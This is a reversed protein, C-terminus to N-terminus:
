DQIQTALHRMQEQLSHMRDTLRRESAEVIREVDPLLVERHFKTLVTVLDDV